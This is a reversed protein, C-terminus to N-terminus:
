QSVFVIGTIYRYLYFTQTFNLPFSKAKKELVPIKIYIQKSPSCSNFIIKKRCSSWGMKTRSPHRMGYTNCSRNRSGTRSKTLITHKM